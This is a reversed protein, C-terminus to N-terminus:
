SSLCKERNGLLRNLPYVHPPRPLAQLPDEGWYFVPAGSKQWTIGWKAGPAFTIWSIAAKHHVPFLLVCPWREFMQFPNCMSAVYAEPEILILGQCM